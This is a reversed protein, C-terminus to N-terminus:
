IEEEQLAVKDELCKKKKNAEVLKEHEREKEKESKEYSAALSSIFTNSLTVDSKDPEVSPQSLSLKLEKEKKLQKCKENLRKNKDTLETVLKELDNNKVLLENHGSIAKAYKKTQEEHEKQLKNSEDLLKKKRDLEDILCKAPDPLKFDKDLYGMLKLFNVMNEAAESFTYENGVVAIGVGVAAAAAVTTVLDKVLNKDM